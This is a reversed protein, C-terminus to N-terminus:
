DSIRVLNPVLSFLAALDPVANPDDPRSDVLQRIDDGLLNKTVMGDIRKMTGSKVTTYLFFWADPKIEKVATALISGTVPEDAFVNSSIVVIRGPQDQHGRVLDLVERKESAYCVNDREGLRRRIAANIGEVTQCIIIM